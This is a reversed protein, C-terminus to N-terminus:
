KCAEKLLSFLKKNRESELYLNQFQKLDEFADSLIYAEVDEGNILKDQWFEIEKKLIKEISHKCEVIM